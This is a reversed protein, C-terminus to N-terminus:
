KMERLGILNYFLEESYEQGDIFEVVGYGFYKSSWIDKKFERYVSWSQGEDSSRYIIAKHRKRDEITTAIFMDGQKNKASYYAPGDIECIQRLEQTNRNLQFIYNESDPDDSGWFFHNNEQLISVARFAQSGEAITSFEKTKVNLAYIGSESDSDGTGVILVDQNKKDPQIFHIHRVHTFTYFIEKQFTQLDVQYINVTERQANSWYDGYYMKNELCAIGDRLPRSGREIEIEKLLKNDRFLIIKGKVIVILTNNYKKVAHIGNRLLRKLLSFIDPLADKIKLINKPKDNFYIHNDKSYILRNHNVCHFKKM